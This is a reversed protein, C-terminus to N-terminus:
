AEFQLGAPHQAPARNAAPRPPLPAPPAGPAQAAGAARGQARVAWRGWLWTRDSGYPSRMSQRRPARSQNVGDIVTKILPSAMGDYTWGVHQLTRKARLGLLRSPGFDSHRLQKTMLCDLEQQKEARLGVGAVCAATLAPPAAQMTAMRVRSCDESSAGGLRAGARPPRLPANGPSTGPLAAYPAAPSPPTPPEPGNQYEHTATVPSTTTGSSSHPAATAAAAARHPPRPNAFLLSASAVSPRSPLSASPKSWLAPPAPLCPPPAAPTSPPLVVPAAPSRAAGAPARLLSPLTSASRAANSQTSSSRAAVPCSPPLTDPANPPKHSLLTKGAPRTNQARTQYSATNSGRFAGHVGASVYCCWAAVATCSSLEGGQAKGKGRGTIAEVVCTATRTCAHVHQPRQPQQLRQPVQSLLRPRTSRRRLSSPRPPRRVLRQLLCFASPTRKLRISSRIAVANHKGLVLPPPLPEIVPLQPCPYRLAPYPAPM